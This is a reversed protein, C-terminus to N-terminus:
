RVIRASTRGTTFGRRTARAPREGAARARMCIRARGRRDTRGRSGAFHVTAGRLGRGSHSHRAQFTFCTAEGAVARRPSVSLRIAPKDRIVSITDPKGDPLDVEGSSAAANGVYIKNTKHNVAIGRPGFGVRVRDVVKGDQVITVSRTNLNAVYVRGTVPNVAVNRTFSGAYVPTLLRNTEGNLVELVTRYPRLSEPCSPCGTSPSSVARRDFHGVYIRNSRPDVDVGYPEPLTEIRKIVELTRTDVVTIQNSDIASVYVRNTRHNIAPEIPSTGAPIGDSGGRIWRRERPDYVSLRGPIFCCDPDRGAGTEGANAVFLLGTEQDVEIEGPWGNQSPKGSIPAPEPTIPMRANPPPPVDITEIVSPPNTTGDIISITGGGGGISGDPNFVIPKGNGNAVYVRGSRLHVAVGAPHDGVPVTAVVRDTRGDIVTVHDPNTGLGDDGGLNTMYIKNRRTDVAAFVPDDKTDPPGITKIVKAKGLGAPASVLAAASLLAILVAILGLWPAIRPAPM